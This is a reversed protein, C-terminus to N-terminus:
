VSTEARQKVPLQVAVLHPPKEASTFAKWGESGLQRWLKSQRPIFHSTSAGRLLFQESLSLVM